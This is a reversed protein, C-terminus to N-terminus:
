DHTPLYSLHPDSSRTTISIIRQLYVPVLEKRRFVWSQGRQKGTKERCLIDEALGFFPLFIYPFECQGRNPPILTVQSSNFQSIKL